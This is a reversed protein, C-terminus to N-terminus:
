ALAKLAALLRDIQENTHTAFVVVRLVGETEVGVYHARQICIGREMLGQHVRDM